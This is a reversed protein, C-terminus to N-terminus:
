TTIAKLMVTGSSCPFYSKPLMQQYYQRSLCCAQHIDLEVLLFFGAGIHSSKTYPNLVRLSCHNDGAPLQFNESQVLFFSGAIEHVHYLIKKKQKNYGKM